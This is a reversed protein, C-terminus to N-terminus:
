LLVLQLLLLLYLRRWFRLLGRVGSGRVILHSGRWFGGMHNALRMLHIKGQPTFEIERYQDNVQYDEESKLQKSIEAAQRFSEIQHPNPAQGSIILPTVAEDVLISDAEDVIAYHLGRQVVRDTAKGGTIIKDLLTSCLKKSNGLILRDRLFDATVEKNTCYTIDAAYAKRREDPSMQQEIFSVSLGCFRYIRGMWDADRRALYDNVTIVHCGHGRWGAITAPM